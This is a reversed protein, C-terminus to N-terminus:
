QGVSCFPQRVARPNRAASPPKQVHTGSTVGDSYTVKWFQQRSSPTRSGVVPGRHREPGPPRSQEGVVRDGHGCGGRSVSGTPLHQTTRRKTKDYCSGNATCLQGNDFRRRFLVTRGVAARVPTFPFALCNRHQNAGFRPASQRCDTTESYDPSGPQAICNAGDTRGMKACSIEICRSIKWDDGGRQCAVLGATTVPPWAMLSAIPVKARVVHPKCRMSTQNCGTQPVSLQACRHQSGAVSRFWSSVQISHALSM